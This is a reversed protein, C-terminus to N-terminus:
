DVAYQHLQRKRWLYVQCLKPRWVALSLHPRIGGQSNAAERGTKRGTFWASWPIWSAAGPCRPNGQGSFLRNNYAPAVDNSFWHRQHKKGLTGSDCYTVAPRLIKRIMYPPSVYNYRGDAFGTENSGVHHFFPTTTMSTPILLCPLGRRLRQNRERIRLLCRPDSGNRSTDLGM